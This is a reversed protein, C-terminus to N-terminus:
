DSFQKMLSDIMYKKKHKINNNIMYGHLFAIKNKIEVSPFSFIKGIQHFDKDTFSYHSRLLYKIEDRNSSELEEFERTMVHFSLSTVVNKKRIEFNNVECNFWCDAGINLLDKQAPLLVNKKLDRYQTYKDEIGLLKRFEGISIPFQGKKRWSCLLKYIRPTYKNRSKQAVQYIFKTFEVPKRQSDLDVEILLKAVMKDIEIIITSNRKGKEPIDARFLGVYRLRNEKNVENRYPIIVVKSALEKISEKVFGYQAPNKTIERLPIEFSIYSVSNEFLSLQTYIEGRMRKQIAEQLYYMVATFLREQILTYNYQAKTIRNPQYIYDGLQQFIIPKPVM